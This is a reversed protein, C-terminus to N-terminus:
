AAGTETSGAREEEVNGGKGSGNTSENLSLGAMSASTQPMNVVEDDSSEESSDDEDDEEENSMGNASSSSNEKGGGSQTYSPKLVRKELIRRQIQNQEEEEKADQDEKNALGNMRIGGGARSFVTNSRSERTMEAHGAEANDTNSPDNESLSAHQSPITLLERPVLDYEISLALFREYLSTSSECIDFLERHHYWAACLWAEAQTKTLRNLSIRM